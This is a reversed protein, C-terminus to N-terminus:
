DMLSRYICSLKQKQPKEQHTLANNNIKINLQIDTFEIACFRSLEEEFFAGEKLSKNKLPYPIREKKLRKHM